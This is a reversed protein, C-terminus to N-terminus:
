RGGEQTMLAAVAPGPEGKGMEGDDEGSAKDDPMENECLEASKVSMVASGGAIEDITARVELTVEDGPAKGSLAERLDEDELSVSLKNSAM